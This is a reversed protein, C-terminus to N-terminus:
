AESRIIQERRQALIVLKVADAMGALIEYVGQIAEAKAGDADALAAKLPLDELSAASCFVVWNDPYDIHRSSISLIVGKGINIAWTTPPADHPEGRRRSSVDKWEPTM